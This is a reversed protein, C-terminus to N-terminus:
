GHQTSKIDIVFVLTQGALESGSGKEGYAYKPPISVVLKTGVKQGVLAAGFGEVVQDTPFTAAARGYSQDFIKGTDWSTGQYDLTVSDGKQVVEGDGEDLVKLLLEKPPKTKPLELTPPKTGNFTVTPAGKAWAVPQVPKKIGIIDTVIVVTDDASIGLQPNGQEGYMDKAPSAVVVRSGIKQCDIGAAFAKIMKTDGAALSVQQTGLPKADKGLFVSILANVDQGGQVEAGTGEKLVTRQLSSAELPTSFEVEQKEGFTGSVKVADSAKGASVDPCAAAANSTESSSSTADKGDKSGPDDGCAAVTLLLAAAAVAAATRRLASSPSM